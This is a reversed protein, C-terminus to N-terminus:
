FRFYFFYFIHEYNKALYKGKDADRIYLMKLDIQLLIYFAQCNIKRKIKKSQHKVM